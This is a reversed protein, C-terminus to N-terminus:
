REMYSPAGATCSAPRDLDTLAYVLQDRVIGAKIASRLLRGEYHYGAKELVRVSAANQGKWPLRASVYVLFAWQCRLQM